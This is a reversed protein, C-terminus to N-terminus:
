DQKLSSNAKKSLITGLFAAKKGNGYGGLRNPLGIVNEVKVPRLNM